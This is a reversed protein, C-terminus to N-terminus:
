KTKTYISQNDARGRYSRYHSQNSTLGQQVLWGALDWKHRVIYTAM